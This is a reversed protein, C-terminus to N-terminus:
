RGSGARREAELLCILTDDIRTLRGEGKSGLWDLVGATRGSPFFPFYVGAPTGPVRGKHAPAAPHFGPFGDGATGYPRGPEIAALRLNRLSCPAEAQFLTRAYAAKLGPGKGAKRRYRM